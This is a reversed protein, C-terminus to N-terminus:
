RRGDRIQYIRPVSLGAATAIRSVPVQVALAARIAVDRDDMAGALVHTADEVVLLARERAGSDLAGPTAGNLQEALVLWQSEDLPIGDDDTDLGSALAGLDDQTVPSYDDGRDIRGDAPGTWLARLQDTTVDM